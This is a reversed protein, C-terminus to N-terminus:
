FRIGAGVEINQRYLRIRTEKIPISNFEIAYIFNIFFHDGNYGLQARGNVYTPVNVRFRHEHELFYNQFQIGTGLLIIPTLHFKKLVFQYGSGFSLLTTYFDGNQLRYLNPYNNQQSFPVINSDTEIHQYRESVSMLFSGAGRKQRETQAFAANLSFKKNFNFGVNLGGEIIRLNRVKPYGDSQRNWEPYFKEYSDLYFGKYDRYFMTWSVVRGDINVFIDRFKTNGYKAILSASAPLKFVASAYVKKIRISAGVLGPMSPQWDFSLGNNDRNSVNFIVTPYIYKPRFLFNKPFTDINEYRKQLREKEKREKKEARTEKKKQQSYSFHSFM